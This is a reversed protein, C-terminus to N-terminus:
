FAMARKGVIDCISHKDCVDHDAVAICIGGSRAIRKLIHRTAAKVLEM